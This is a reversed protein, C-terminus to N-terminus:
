RDSAARLYARTLAIGEDLDAPRRTLSFRDGLFAGLNAMCTAREPHGDPVAKLSERGLSVAEDLDAPMRSWQFRTHLAAGLNSLWRPRRPHRAPASRLVQRMWEIGQDLRARDRAALAERTLDAIHGAIMELDVPTSNEAELYHRVSDPLAAPEMRNVPELLRLAESLEHQGGASGLVLHRYWHLVGTVYAVELDSAVGPTEALLDGILSLVEPGAVLAPDRRAAFQELRTRAEALLIERVAM